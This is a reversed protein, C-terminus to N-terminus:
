CKSDAKPPLLATFPAKAPPPAVARIRDHINVKERNRREVRKIGEIIPAMEEYVTRQTQKARGDAESESSKKAGRSKSSKSRQKELSTRKVVESPPVKKKELPLSKTKERVAAIIESRDVSPDVATADGATLQPSVVPLDKSMKERKEVSKSPMLKALLSRRKEKRDSGGSYEADGGGASESATVKTKSKPRHFAWLRERRQGPSGDTTSDSHSSQRQPIATSKPTSSPHQLVASPGSSGIKEGETATVVLASSPRKKESQHLRRRVLTADDVATPSQSSKAVNKEGSRQTSKILALEEPSLVLKSVDLQPQDSPVTPLLRRRPQDSSSINSPLHEVTAPAESALGNVLQPKGSPTSSSSQRSSAGHAASTAKTSSTPAIEDFVRRPDIRVPQPAECFFRRKADILRSPSVVSVPPSDKRTDADAVTAHLENQLQAYASDTEDKLIGNCVPESSSNDDKDASWSEADALDQSDCKGDVNDASLIDDFSFSALRDLSLSDDTAAMLAAPCTAVEQTGSSSSEDANRSTISTDAASDSTATFSVDSLSEKESYQRQRKDRTSVFSKDVRYLHEAGSEDEAKYEVIRSEEGATSMEATHDSMSTVALRDLRSTPSVSDEAKALDSSMESKGSRKSSMFVDDPMLLSPSVPGVKSSSLSELLRDIRAVPDLKALQSTDVSLSAMPSRIVVPSTADELNEKEEISDAKDVCLPVTNVGVEETPESQQSSDQPLSQMSMKASIKVDNDTNSESVTEQGVNGSVNALIVDSLNTSDTTSDAILNDINSSTDLNQNEDTAAVETEVAVDSTVGGPAPVHSPVVVCLELDEDSFSDVEARPARKEAPAMAVTQDPSKSPPPEHSGKHDSPASSQPSQNVVSVRMEEMHDDKRELAMEKGSERFVEDMEKADEGVKAVNSEKDKTTDEEAQDVLGDEDEVGEKWGFMLLREESKTLPLDAGDTPPQADGIARFSSVVDDVVQRQEESCLDDDVDERSEQRQEESCLDDEVDERCASDEEAFLKNYNITRGDALYETENTEDENDDGSMCLEDVIESESESVDEAADCITVSAEEQSEQGGTGESPRVKDEFSAEEGLSCREDPLGSSSDMELPEDKGDAGLVSDKTEKVDGTAPVDETELELSRDVTDDEVDEEDDEDTSAGEISVVPLAAHKEAVAGGTVHGTVRRKKRRKRWRKAREAPEHRGHRKRNAEPEKALAASNAEEGAAETPKEEEELPKGPDAKVEVEQEVEPPKQVNPELGLFARANIRVPQSPVSFFAMRNRMIEASSPVSKPQTSVSTSQPPQSGDAVAGDVRESVNEKSRVATGVIVCIWMLESNM